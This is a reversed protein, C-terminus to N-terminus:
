YFLYNSALSFETRRVTQLTMVFRKQFDRIATTGSLM